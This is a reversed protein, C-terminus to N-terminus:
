TSGNARPREASSSDNSQVFRHRFNADECPPVNNSTPSAVPKTPGKTSPFRKLRSIAPTGVSRNDKALNTISTLIQVFKSNMKEEMQDMRAEMADEWTSVEEVDIEDQSSM